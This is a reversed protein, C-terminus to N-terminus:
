QDKPPPFLRQIFNRKKIPRDLLVNMNNEADLNRDWLELAKKYHVVAEKYLGKKRFVVGLNTYCVSLRRDNEALAGEIENVRSKIFKTMTVEDYEEFGVIFDQQIASFIEESTKGSFLSSWISYQLIAKQVHLEALILISDSSLTSYPNYQKPISDAYMSLTLFAAAKNNYLVGLEFSNQYHFTTKYIKEISDILSFVKYFDGEMAYKDYKAYLLRAETVRPDSTKKIKGYYAKAIFFGILVLATMILILARTSKNISITM